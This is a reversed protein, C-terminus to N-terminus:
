INWPDVSDFIGLTWVTLYDFFGHVSNLLGLPAVLIRDWRVPLPPTFVSTSKYM